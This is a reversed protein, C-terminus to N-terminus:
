PSHSTAEVVISVNEVGTGSFTLQAGLQKLLLHLFNSELGFHGSGICVKCIDSNVKCITVACQGAGVGAPSDFYTSNESSVGGCGLTVIKYFIVFHYLIAM